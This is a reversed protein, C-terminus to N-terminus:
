LDVCAHFLTAGPHIATMHWNEPSRSIIAQNKSYERCPWGSGDKTWTWALAIMTSLQGFSVALENGMKKPARQLRVKRSRIMLFHSRLIDFSRIRHLGTRSLIRCGEGGVTVYTLIRHLLFPSARRQAACVGWHNSILGRQQEVCLSMLITNSGSLLYQQGQLFTM